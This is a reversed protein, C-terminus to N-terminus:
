SADFGGKPSGAAPTSGGGKARAARPALGRRELLRAVARSSMSEPPEGWRNIAHERDGGADLLAEVVACYDRDAHRCHTSGHGAWGVPSSGYQSDRVNVPSGLSLLLRTVAVDGHWAAHHLPTGGWAGEWTPDFGLAFMLRLAEVRKEEAALAMAQRGEADLEGVLGPHEALLARARPGDAAMCAGLLEDAPTPLSVDAGRERLLEAAAVNGTRVALAYPTRGDARRADVAAGHDLFMQLRAPSAGYAALRHLPTESAPTSVVDPDAGHELLWRMGATATVSMPHWEKWGCLFYLPTNGWHPHRGSLDAGRARLLELCERHDLEAAHYISEGDDPDAGRQLLLEVLAVHDVVCAHYLAPIKSKPDGPDFLSSENASAGRDLLLEACRLIGQARAPARAHLPSACAYLLPTMGDGPHPFSVLDPRADLVATVFAAEGACCAVYLNSRAIEPYRRLLRAATAAKRERIAHLFREVRVLLPSPRANPGGGATV